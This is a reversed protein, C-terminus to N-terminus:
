DEEDSETAPHSPSIILYPKKVPKENSDEVGKQVRKKGQKVTKDEAKAEALAVQFDTNLGDVRPSIEQEAGQVAELAVKRSEVELLKQKKEDEFALRDAELAVKWSEVELLKQKKEDEFALRDAELAVKFSEVELLKQKKEDEFALRDAELAVKWSEVELLNQKKEDEFALREAELTVKFSEVELLIQKKEDEFALREAKLAQTIGAMHVEKNEAYNIGALVLMQAKTWHTPIPCGHIHLYVFLGPGPIRHFDASDCFSQFKEPMGSVVPTEASIRFSTMMVRSAVQALYSAKQLLREHTEEFSLREKEIEDQLVILTLIKKDLTRLMDLFLPRPNFNEIMSEPVFGEPLYLCIGGGGGQQAEEEVNEM